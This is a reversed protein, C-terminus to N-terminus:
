TTAVVAFTVLARRVVGSTAGRIAAVRLGIKTANWVYTTAPTDYPPSCYGQDICLASGGDRYAVIQYRLQTVGQGAAQAFMQPDFNAMLEIDFHRLGLCPFQAIESFGGAQTLVPERSTYRVYGLKCGDPVRDLQTGGQDYINVNALV